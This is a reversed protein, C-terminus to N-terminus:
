AAWCPDTNRAIARVPFQIFVSLAEESRINLSINVVYIIILLDVGTLV